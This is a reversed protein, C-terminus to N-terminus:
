GLVPRAAGGHPFIEVFDVFIQFVKRGRCYNYRGSFLLTLM